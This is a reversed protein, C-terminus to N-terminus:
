GGIASMTRAPQVFGPENVRHKLEKRWVADRIIRELEGDSPATACRGACTPRTCRSCAPACSARRRDAPDPQLRRLVARLGPQHLRDRGDGDAFRYVRATAHAERPEAGAPLPTSRDRPDRRRDPRQRAVLHPRRRAAHVRHLAGPLAARPRVRRLAAGRGRHVRADRGRQGQDPAGRPVRRAGRLGRLVQPLADRRTM